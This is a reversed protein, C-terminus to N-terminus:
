KQVTYVYVFASGVSRNIGPQHRLVIIRPTGYLVALAVDRESVALKGPKTTGAEVSLIRNCFTSLSIYYISFLFLLLASKSEFKTIKQMNGPTVHLAQM